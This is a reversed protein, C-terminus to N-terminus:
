TPVTFWIAAVIIVLFVLGVVLGRREDPAIDVEFHFIANITDGIVNALRQRFLFGIAAFAWGAYTVWHRLVPDISPGHYNLSHALGYLWWCAVGVLAGFLAGILAYTIRDVIAM